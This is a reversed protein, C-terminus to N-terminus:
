TGTGEHFLDLQRPAARQDDAYDQWARMVATLQNPTAQEAGWQLALSRQVETLEYRPLVSVTQFQNRYLGLRAAMAHLREEHGPYVFLYCMAHHVWRRTEVSQSLRDVFVAANPHAEDKKM